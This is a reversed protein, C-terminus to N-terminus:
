LAGEGFLTQAAALRPAPWGAAEGAGAEKNGALETEAGDVGFETDADEGEWWAHLRALLSTKGTEPAPSSDTSM